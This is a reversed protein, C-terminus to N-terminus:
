IEFRAMKIMITIGTTMSAAACALAFHGRSDYIFSDLYGPTTFYLATAVFFPLSGVIMTSAKAESAMAKIKMRMMFRKRLVDSLNNLIESLNGGTERQLIISTVFFNFETSNLRKATDALAKEVPVGLRVSEGVSAFIGGVPEEMEGGVMNMSETVPLGSRLGRVIFDIADPFLTLFKKIRKGGKFGVYFYPFGVGLLLGFLVAMVPPKHTLVMFLVILLFIGGCISVYKDPAIMMGARELRARLSAMSTINMLMKGIIPLGAEKAKRLSLTDGLGSKVIAGRKYTVRAIRQELKQRKPATIMFWIFLGGLLVAVPVIYQWQLLDGKM